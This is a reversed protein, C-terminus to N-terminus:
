GTRLLNKSSKKTGFEVEEQENSDRRGDIRSIIANCDKSGFRQKQTTKSVQEKPDEVRKRVQSDFYFVKAPSNPQQPIGKRASAGALSTYIKMPSDINISMKSGKEILTKRSSSNLDALDDQSAKIKEKIFDSATMSKVLSLTM